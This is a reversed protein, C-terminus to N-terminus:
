IMGKTSPIMNLDTRKVAYKIAKAFAKFIAEIKHHENDGECKINLNCSANDSFSKFFHMFMETPMDGIKERKFDANWVLWPRGSFDIVVQALADDMPLLFGYRNIGKKDSLAKKVAQGLVIASDETLHHEDTELDGKASVEIDILSHKAVQEFMHNLFNLGTDIKSVGSGDLNLSITIDTERTKRIIKAKREPLKLFKYIDNWNNTILSCCHSLENNRIKNESVFGKIFIAKCGLNEAM